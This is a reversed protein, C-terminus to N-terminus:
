RIRDPGPKGARASLLRPLEYLIGRMRETRATSGDM